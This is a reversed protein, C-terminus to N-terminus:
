AVQDIADAITVCIAFFGLWVMTQPFVITLAQAITAVEVCLLLKRHEKELAKRIAEAKTHLSKTQRPVFALAKRIKACPARAAVKAARVLHPKM